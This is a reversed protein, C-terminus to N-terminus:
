KQQNEYYYYADPHYERMYELVTMEGDPNLLVYDVYYLLILQADFNTVPAQYYFKIYRNGNDSTYIEYDGYDGDATGTMPTGILEEVRAIQEADGTFRRSYLARGTEKEIVNALEIQQKTLLGDLGALTDAYQQLALQADACDVRGDMNVDGLRYVLEDNEAALVPTCLATCGLVAAALISLLKKMRIVGEFIINPLRRRVSPAADSIDMPIVGQEQKRVAAHAAKEM